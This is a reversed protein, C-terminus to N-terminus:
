DGERLWPALKGVGSVWLKERPRSLAVFLLQRELAMAAKRDAETEQRGLVTKNPVVGDEVGIVAVARFEMGKVRHMTAVRVGPGEANDKMELAALGARKIAVVARQQLIKRTRGVVAIQEAAFGEESLHKLWAALAQIEERPNAFLQVQPLEGDLLSIARTVVKEGEAEQIEEPLVSAAFDAIQRTTRYNIWLRQSRGVTEIGLHRWPVRTQYIRQAADGALFLDNEGEPVIERLLELQVPRLDQVEDVVVHHFRPLRGARELLGRALGGWTLKHKSTLLEQVRAFVPWIERRRSVNLPTGRGSRDVKLYSDIDRIGWADVVRAWESSVFSASAWDPPAIERLSQELAEEVDRESAMRPKKGSIESYWGVALRDLNGVTLNKLGPALKQVNAEIQRALTKNFTTLLVKAGPNERALRVARHVAVVTKGTGAAGTVKAPGRYNQSVAAQQAPHLFVMWDEWDGFLARELEEKTEILLFRYRNNPHRLPDTVRVKPPPAVPKGELLAWIREQVPPPLGELLDLIGEESAHRLPDIYEQPIGLSHLYEPTFSHLPAEVIKEVVVEQEREIVRIVQIEKTEPHIKVRRKRIWSYADDHNGVYVIVLSTGAEVLIARRAKRLDFVYFGEHKKYELKAEAKAPDLMLEFLQAEVEKLDSQAFTSRLRSLLDRDLAITRGLLM